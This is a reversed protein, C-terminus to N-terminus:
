RGLLNSALDVQDGSVKDININNLNDQKNNEENESIIDFQPSIQKEVVTNELSKSNESSLEKITSKLRM